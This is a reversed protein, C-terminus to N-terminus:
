VTYEVQSTQSPWNQTELSDVKQTPNGGGYLATKVSSATSSLNPALDGSDGYHRLVPSVVWVISFSECKATRGLSSLTPLCAVMSALSIELM